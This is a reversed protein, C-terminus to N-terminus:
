TGEHLLKRAVDAKSSSHLRRVSSSNANPVSISNINLIGGFWGKGNFEFCKRSEDLIAVQSIGQFALLLL